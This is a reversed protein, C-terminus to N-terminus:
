FLLGHVILFNYISAKVLIGRMGGGGAGRSALSRNSILDVFNGIVQQDDSKREGKDGAISCSGVKGYGRNTYYVKTVDEKDECAWSQIFKGHCTM